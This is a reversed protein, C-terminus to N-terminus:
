PIVTVGGNLSGNNAAILGAVTVGACTETHIERGRGNLGGTLFNRNFTIGSINPNPCLKLSLGGGFNARNHEITGGTISTSPCDALAIAGGRLNPGLAFVQNSDFKSEDIITTAGKAFVGGGSGSSQVRNRVFNCETLNLTLTYHNAVLCIGGGSNKGFNHEFTTNSVNVTAGGRNVYGWGRLHSTYMRGIDATKVFIAGGSGARAVNGNFTSSDSISLDANRLSIAGGNLLQSINGRFSSRFIDIASAYTCQIAGGNNDAINRIFSCNKIIGLSSSSVYIAGGDDKSENGEFKCNEIHVYTKNTRHAAPSDQGDNGLNNIGIGGGDVKAKNNEFNCEMFTIWSQRTVGAGGGRHDSNNNWFRSNTVLIAPQAGACDIAFLGGGGYSCKNATFAAKDIVIDVSSRISVGGGGANGAGTSSNSIFYNNETVKVNRANLISLGGGGDLSTNHWFLNDTFQINSSDREVVAGGGKHNSKNGIICCSKISLDSGSLYIGGGNRNGSDGRIVNLNQISVNNVNNLTIVTGSSNGDLVPKNECIDIIESLDPFDIPQAGPAPRHGLINVGSKGVVLEPYYGFALHVTGGGTAFCDDVGKQITAFPLNWNNGPNVDAGFNSVYKDAM